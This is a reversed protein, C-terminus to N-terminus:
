DFGYILSKVYPRPKYGFLYYLCLMTVLYRISPGHKLLTLLIDMCQEQKLKSLCGHGQDPEQAARGRPTASRTRENHVITRGETLGEQDTNDVPPRAVHVPESRHEVVCGCAGERPSKM